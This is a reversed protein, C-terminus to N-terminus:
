LDAWKGLLCVQLGQWADDGTPADSVNVTIKADEDFVGDSFASQFNTRDVIFGSGTVVIGAAVTTGNHRVSVTISDATNPAPSYFRIQDVILNAPIFGVHYEAVEVDDSPPIVEYCRKEECSDCVCQFSAFNCNTLDVGSPVVDDNYSFVVEDTDGDGETVTTITLDLTTLGEVMVIAAVVSKTAEFCAAPISGKLVDLTISTAAM